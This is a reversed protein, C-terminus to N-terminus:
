GRMEALHVATTQQKSALQCAVSADAGASLLEDILAASAPLKDVARHRRLGCCASPRTPLSGQPFGTVRRHPESACFAADRARTRAHGAWRYLPTAGSCAVWNVHSVLAERKLAEVSFRLLHLAAAEQRHAIAYYLLPMSQKPQNPDPFLLADRRGGHELVQLCPPALCARSPPTAWVERM